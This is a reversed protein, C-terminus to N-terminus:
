EVSVHRHLHLLVAHIDFLIVRFTIDAFVKQIIITSCFSSTHM